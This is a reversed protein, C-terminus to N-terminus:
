YARRYTAYRFHFGNQEETDTREILTFDDDYSPFFRNCGFDADIHTLYLEDALGTDIVQQYVEAGGIVWLDKDAFDQLFRDLDHVTKAGALPKKNSTLVYNIRGTLPGHFLKYTTSGVLINGGLSTTCRSFYAEDDPLNWPQCGHKGIGRERDLAAILRIM